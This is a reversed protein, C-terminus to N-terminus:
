NYRIRSGIKNALWESSTPWQPVVQPAPITYAGGTGRRSYKPPMAIDKSPKVAAVPMKGSQAIRNADNAHSTPSFNNRAVLYAKRISDPSDIYGQVVGGMTTNSPNVPDSRTGRLLPMGPKASTLRGSHHPTHIQVVMALNGRTDIGEMVNSKLHNAFERTPTDMPTGRHTNGGIIGYPVTRRNGM